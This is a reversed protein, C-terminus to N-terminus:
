FNKSFFGRNYKYCNWPLRLGNKEIVIKITDLSSLQPRKTLYCVRDVGSVTVYYYGNSNFVMKIDTYTTPFTFYGPHVDLIVPKGTIVIKDASAQFSIVSLFLAMFSLMIFKMTYESVLGAFMIYVVDARRKHRIAKL